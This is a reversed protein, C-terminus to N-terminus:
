LCLYAMYVYYRSSATAVSIMRIGSVQATQSGGTEWRVAWTIIDNASGGIAALSSTPTEKNYKRGNCSSWFGTTTSYLYSYSVQLVGAICTCIYCKISMLDSYTLLVLCIDWLQCQLGIYRYWRCVYWWYFLETFRSCIEIFSYM